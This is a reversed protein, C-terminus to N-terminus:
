AYEIGLTTKVFLLDLLDIEKLSLLTFMNSLLATACAELKGLEPLNLLVHCDKNIAGGTLAAKVEDRAKKNFEQKM